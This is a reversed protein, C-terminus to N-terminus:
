RVRPRPKEMRERMAIRWASRMAPRTRPAPEPRFDHRRRRGEAGTAPLVEIGRGQLVAVEKGNAYGNDALVTRPMGLAPAIADM